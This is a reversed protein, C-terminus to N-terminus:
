SMQAAIGSCLSWKPHGNDNLQRLITPTITILVPDEYKQESAQGGSLNIICVSRDTIRTKRLMNCISKFSTEVYKTTNTSVNSEM